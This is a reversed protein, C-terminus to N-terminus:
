GSPKEWRKTPMTQIIGYSIDIDSKLNALYTSVGKLFHLKNKMYNEENIRKVDVRTQQKILDALADLKEEIFRQEDM